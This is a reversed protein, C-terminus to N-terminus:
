VLSKMAPGAPSALGCFVCTSLLQVHACLNTRKIVANQDLTDVDLLLNASSDDDRVSGFLLGELGFDDGNAFPLVGFIALADFEVDLLAVLDQNALVGAGLDFEFVSLEGDKAFVFDERDDLLEPRLDQRCSHGFLGSGETFRL